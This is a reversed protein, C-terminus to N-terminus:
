EDVDKAEIWYFLRSLEEATRECVKPFVARGDARASEKRNIKIRARLEEVIEEVTPRPWSRANDAM